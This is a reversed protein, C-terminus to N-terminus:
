AVRALTRRGRDRHSQLTRYRSSRSEGACLRLVRPVGGTCNEDVELDIYKGIASDIWEITQSRSRDRCEVAITVDTGDVVTCVRIDVEREAGDPESEAASEVVSGGAGHYTEHIRRVLQQFPNTKASM